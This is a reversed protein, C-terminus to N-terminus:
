KALQITTGWKIHWTFISNKAKLAKFNYKQEETINCYRKKRSFLFFQWKVPFPVRVDITEIKGDHNLHWILSLWILIGVLYYIPIGISVSQSYFLIPKLYLSGFSIVNKEFVLKLSKLSGIKSKLSGIKVFISNKTDGFLPM